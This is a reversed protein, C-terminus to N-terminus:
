KKILVDELGLTVKATKINKFRPHVIKLPILFAFHPHCLSIYM